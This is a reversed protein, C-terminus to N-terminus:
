GFIEYRARLDWLGALIIIAGSAAEFRVTVRKSGLTEDLSLFIATFLKALGAAM